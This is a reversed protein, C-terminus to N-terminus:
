RGDQFNQWVCEECLYTQKGRFKCEYYARDGDLSLKVGCDACKIEEKLKGKIYKLMEKQTVKM